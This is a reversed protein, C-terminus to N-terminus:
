SNKQVISTLVRHVVATRIHPQQGYQQTRPLDAYRLDEKDKFLLGSERDQDSFIHDTAQMALSDSARKAAVSASSRWILL